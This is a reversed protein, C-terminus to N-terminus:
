ITVETIEVKEETELSICIMFDHWKLFQHYLASSTGHLKFNAEYATFARYFDDLTSINEFKLRKSIASINREDSIKEIDVGVPQDSVALVVYQHSHALSLYRNSQTCVPKGQSNVIFDNGFHEFILARGTLFQLRKTHNAIHELRETDQESLKSVIDSFDNKIIRTLDTIFVKM